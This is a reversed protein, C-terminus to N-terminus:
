RLEVQCWHQQVTQLPYHYPVWSFQKESRSAAPIKEAILQRSVIKRYICITKHFLTSPPYKKQGQWFCSKKANSGSFVDGKLNYPRDRVICQVKTGITVNCANTWRGVNARTFKFFHSEDLVIYALLSQRHLSLM